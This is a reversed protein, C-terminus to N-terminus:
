KEKISYQTIERGVNNQIHRANGLPFENDCFNRQLTNLFHRDMLLPKKFIIWNVNEVCNPITQSGEYFIYDKLTIMVKDIGEVQSKVKKDFDLTKWWDDFLKPSNTVKGFISIILLNNPITKDESEHVFQIETDEVNGEVIHEPPTRFIVRKLMYEIEKSPKPKTDTFTVKSKGDKIDMKYFSGNWELNGESKGYQFNLIDNEIKNYKDIAIPSQRAGSKCIGPWNQGSKTYDITKKMSNPHRIQMGMGFIDFSSVLLIILVLKM